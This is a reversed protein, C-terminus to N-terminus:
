LGARRLQGPLAVEGFDIVSHRLVNGQSDVKVRARRNRYFFNLRYHGEHEGVGRECLSTIAGSRMLAHVDTADLRLLGALLTADVFIDDQGPKM